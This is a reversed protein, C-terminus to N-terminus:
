VTILKLELTYYHEDVPDTCDFLQKALIPSGSERNFRVTFIDGHLNLTHDTDASQSLTRLAKLTLRDIWAYTDDGRLTIPRGAIKSSEQLILSGTLSRTQTQKVIDFDFEDSWILDDPLSIAGLTISM